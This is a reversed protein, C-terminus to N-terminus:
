VQDVSARLQAVAEEIRDLAESADVEPRTLGMRIYNRALVSPPVEAAKARAELAARERNGLRLSFVSSVGHRRAGEEPTLSGARAREDFEADERQVQAIIWESVDM